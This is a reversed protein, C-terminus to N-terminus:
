SGRLFTQVHSMFDPPTVNSREGIFNAFPQPLERGALRDADTEGTPNVAAGDEEGGVMDHTLEPQIRRAQLGKREGETVARIEVLGSSEEGREFPHFTRQVEGEIATQGQGPSADKGVQPVDISEGGAWGAKGGPAFAQRRHIELLGDSRRDGAGGAAM